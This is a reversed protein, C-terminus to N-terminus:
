RPAPPAAPEGPAPVPVPNRLAKEVEQRMQPPLGSLVKELEENSLSGESLAIPPAGAGAGGIVKGDAGIKLLHRTIRALPDSAAVPQPAEHQGLIATTEHQQGKRFYTLKVPDDKKHNAILVALQRTTIIIQDDIRSLVDSEMLGAKAAPSDPAVAAILLGTDPPLPLQASLERSLETTAVGLYTVPGSRVPMKEQYGFPELFGGADKLDVIRTEKKGNIDTTIVVKGQLAAAVAPDHLNLEPAGAAPPSPAKQAPAASDNGAPAPPTEPVAPVPPEQATTYLACGLLAAAFLRSNM